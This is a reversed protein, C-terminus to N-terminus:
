RDASAAPKFGDTINRGRPQFENCPYYICPLESNGCQDLHPKNFTMGYCNLREYTVPPIGAPKVLNKTEFYYVVRYGGYAALAISFSMLGAQIIRRNSFSSSIKELPLMYLLVMIAPIIYGFGFRPDPAQIAWLVICVGSAILMYLLYLRGKWKIKGLLFLHTLLLAALGTLIIKNELSRNQWWIPLWQSAPMSIVEENKYLTTEDGVRAYAKIYHSQKTMITEPAKWDAHIINPFTLPFFPYGSTIINRAIFPTSTLMIVLVAVGLSRKYQKSYVLYVIGAFLAAPAASLKISVSFLGIFLMLLLFSRRQDTHHLQVFLYCTFWIYIATIFDPSASTLTGRIMTFSWFSFVFLLLWIVGKMFASPAATEERIFGNLKEHLFIIFWTIVTIGLFGPANHGAFKFMFLASATFWSSQLGYHYSLNVLGPIVKYAEIWQICQAHYHLTDPHIVEGANIILSVILAIALSLLLAPRLTIFSSELQRKLHGRMQRRSFIFVTPILVLLQPLLGGLPLFLSVFGATVAIAALGCLCTIGFDLKLPLEEKVLMRICSTLLMGWAWCVATIYICVLLSFIM